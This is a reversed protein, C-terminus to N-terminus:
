ACVSFGLRGSGRPRSRSYGGGGCTTRNPSMEPISSFRSSCSLSSYASFSAPAECSTGSPIRSVVQIVALLALAVAFGLFDDIIFSAVLMVFTAALKIRPDLRHIASGTDVFQGFVVNRQLELV